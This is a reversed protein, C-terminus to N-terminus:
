SGTDRVLLKCPHISRVSHPAERVRGEERQARRGYHRRTVARSGGRLDLLFGRSRAGSLQKGRRVLHLRDERRGIVAEVGDEVETRWRDVDTPELDVTLNGTSIYSVPEDGGAQEAIDLLVTRHLGERGIMVARVFAAFRM